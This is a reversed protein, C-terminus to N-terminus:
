CDEGIKCLETAETLVPGVNIHGVAESVDKGLYQTKDNDWPELTDFVGGSAGTPKAPRFCMKLILSSGGHHPEWLLQLDMQCLTQFSGHSIELGLNKSGLFLVSLVAPGVPFASGVLGLAERGSRLRERSQGESALARVGLGLICCTGLPLM